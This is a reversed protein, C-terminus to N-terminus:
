QDCILFIDHKKRQQVVTTYGTNIKKQNRNKPFCFFFEFLRYMNPLYFDFFDSHNVGVCIM